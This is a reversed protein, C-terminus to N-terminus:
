TRHCVIILLLLLRLGACSDQSSFIFSLVLPLQPLEIIALLTELIIHMFVFGDDFQISDTCFCFLSCPFLIVLLLPESLTCM